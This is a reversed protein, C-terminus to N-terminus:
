AAVNVAVSSRSRLGSWSRWDGTAGGAGCPTCLGSVRIAAPHFKSPLDHGYRKYRINVGRKQLSKVVMAAFSLLFDRDFVNVDM